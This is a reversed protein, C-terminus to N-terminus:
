NKSVIASVSLSGLIKIIYRDYTASRLKKFSFILKGDSKLPLVYKKQVPRIQDEKLKGTQFSVCNVSRKIESSYTIYRFLAKFYNM